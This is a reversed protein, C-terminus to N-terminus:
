KIKDSNLYDTFLNDNVKYLFHLSKELDNLNYEIYAQLSECTLMKKSEDDKSIFLKDQKQLKKHLETSLVTGAEIIIVYNKDRKILIDFVIPEGISLSDIDFLSFLNSRKLSRQVVRM